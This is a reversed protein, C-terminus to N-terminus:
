PVPKTKSARLRAYAEALRRDYRNAGYDPGNYRRAVGPWDKARLAKVLAADAAIFRALGDLQAAESRVYAAVMAEVGAYGALAHYRGLTQGLGWSASMLAAERDLQIAEALRDYQHAGAAGYGGPPGSVEPHGADFRGATLSRFLHREFLLKPRGDHLFGVGLTEVMPIAFLAEPEVGLTAAATDLEARQLGIAAGSFEM